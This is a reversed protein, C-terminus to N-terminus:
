SATAAPLAQERSEVGASASPERLARRFQVWALITRFVATVCIALAAGRAGALLAGACMTPLDAALGAIQTFLSRRAAGLALMGQTPGMSAALATIYVVLLPLLPKAQPWTAGLVSSGIADPLALVFACWAIAVGTTLASLRRMATPLEAPSHHLLRVGESVFVFTAGIFLLNLPGGLLLIAGRVAGVVGLGAVAGVCALALWSGSRHVVAEAAYRVSLARQDQLWALAKRPAPAAKVQLCGLVAAASASGGWVLVMSLASVAGVAVLVGIGLLQLAIWLGDNAAAKAPTRGTVFSYRWADQTLLGPLCVGLARLPGEVAPATVFSVGVCLVGAVTGVALATGVSARTAQLFRAPPAASYRVVLPISTLGGSLGVCVGYVAYM